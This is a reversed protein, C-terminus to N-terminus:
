EDKNTDLAVFKLKSQVKKNAEVQEAAHLHDTDHEDRLHEFM